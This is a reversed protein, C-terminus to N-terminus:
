SYLPSVSCTAWHSPLNLLVGKSSSHKNGFRRTAIWTMPTRQLAEGEHFLGTQDPSKKHRIQRQRLPGSIAGGRAMAISAKRYEKISM